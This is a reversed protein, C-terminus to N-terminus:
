AGRLLLRGAGWALLRDSLRGLGALLVIAAIVVEPRGTQEGDTLLFGLGESAGLLEAAAVFMWALGLGGRLGVILAPVSAPLLVTRLVGFRGFGLNRAVDIYGADVRAMGAMLNLYVPFFAGVAILAVKSGEAIGLWLIFLPVWAISPVARLGQISPDILRRALPSAGTLCGFVTAAAAGTVFGLGIRRLTATLHLWLEGSRALALLAQAVQAPRPLLDPPVLKAVALWHWLLVLAAPVILGLPLRAAIRHM